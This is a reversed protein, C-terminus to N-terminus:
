AGASRDNAPRVGAGGDSSALYRRREWDSVHSQYQLWESRAIAAFDLVSDTGLIELITDDRTALAIATGLSEPLPADAGRQM